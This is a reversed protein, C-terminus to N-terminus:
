QVGCTSTFRRTPQGPVIQGPYGDGHALHAPEASVSINILVYFGAGTRHCMNVKPGEEEQEPVVGRYHSPDSDTVTVTNGSLTTGTATVTAVNSYQGLVATGTATCTISSGPTLPAPAPCTIAAAPIDTVQIGTLNVTGNNTVIYTWTVTNGVPIEPGPPNDADEGNTFKELEVSPGAPRCSSDFTMNPRGPVPEGIMADGHDRHADEASESIDILHYSGNGEKHCLEVKQTRTEDVIQASSVSLQVQIEIFQDASVNQISITVNVGNGTFQLRVTGGPVDTIQFTGDDGVLASRDSGVVRVTLGAFASASPRIVRPTGNLGATSAAGSGSTVTGAIVAGTKGSPRLPSENGGGCGAAVLAVLCSCLFASITRVSFSM